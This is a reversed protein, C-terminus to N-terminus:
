ASYREEVVGWQLNDFFADIYTGRESPVYDVMFAHEWVDLALLIKQGGLHGLEHDNVWLNVLHGTREDQVLLTWGIGRLKAVEVFEAKWADYSGWQQEIATKLSTESSESAEFQEFYYEHLRMGNFEFGLRRQLESAKRADGESRAAKLDAMLGNMNKVYGAYLGLHIEVQKSSLGKLEGFTFKKETYEM